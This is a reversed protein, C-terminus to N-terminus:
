KKLQISPNRSGRGHEKTDSVSIKTKAGRNGSTSSQKVDSLNQQGQSTNSKQKKM